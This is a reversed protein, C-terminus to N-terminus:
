RGYAIARRIAKDANIVGHGTQTDYGTTGVDTATQSLIDKIQTATLNPNVSWILSAIGSVMATSASTGNFKQDYGHDFYNGSSNFTSKTSIFESPASLTLRDSVKSSWWGRSSYDIRDGPNKGNGDWDKDGWVSAVSIVNDYENVLNIAIASNDNNDNGIAAVFLANDQNNAILEELATSYGGVLSLNIIAKQNNSNARQIILEVAGALSEDGPNNGVVDVMYYSSNWNIGAIGQGNNGQAAIVGSVSTGHSYNVLKNTSSDVFREDFYNNSDFSAPQLDSHINNSQDTGLGTDAIGVLANGNGTTFRWANHVGTMHLNRQDNFSSDNPTVSLVLYDNGAFKVADLGEFLIQKGDNFNIADFVRRGDGPDYVVGGNQSDGLNISVSSRSIGSLDLVERAGTYYNANGNGSFINIQNNSDYNFTNAWLDGQVYRVNNNSQPVPSKNANQNQDFIGNESAFSFELNYSTSASGYAFVRIYYIGADFDQNITESRSGGLNSQAVIEKRGDIIQNNNSDRILQVDADQSLGDLTLDFSGRSTTTFKYFFDNNTSVSGEFIQPSSSINIDILTNSNNSPIEVGM